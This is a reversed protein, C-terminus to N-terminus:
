GQESRHLKEYIAGTWYLQVMLLYSGGFAVTAEEIHPIPLKGLLGLTIGMLGTTILMDLYDPGARKIDASVNRILVSAHVGKAELHTLAMPMLAAQLLGFVAALGKLAIAATAFGQREPFWSLGQCATLALICPTFYFVVPVISKLGRAFMPGIATLPPLRKDGRIGHRIVLVLYGIGLLATVGLRLSIGLILWKFIWAPDKLPQLLRDKRSSKLISDEPM